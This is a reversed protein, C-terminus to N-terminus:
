AARGKKPLYKAKINSVEETKFLDIIGKVVAVFSVILEWGQMALIKFAEAKEPELSIVGIAILVGLLMELLGGITSWLNMSKKTPDYVARPLRIVKGM